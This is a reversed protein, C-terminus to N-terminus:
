RVLKLDSEAHTHKKTYAHAIRKNFDKDAVAKCKFHVGNREEKDGCVTMCSNVNEEAVPTLTTPPPAKSIVFRHLWRGDHVSM